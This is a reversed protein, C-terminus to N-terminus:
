LISSIIKDDGEKSLYELMAEFIGRDIKHYPVGKTYQETEEVLSGTPTDPNFPDNGM